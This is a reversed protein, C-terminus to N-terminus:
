RRARKCPPDLTDVEMNARSGMYEANIGGTMIYGIHTAKNHHRQPIDLSPAPIAKKWGLCMHTSFICVAGLYFVVWGGTQFLEFELRYIDRVAVKYCGPTSVWFLNLTLLGEVNVFYPPPCIKWPEGM